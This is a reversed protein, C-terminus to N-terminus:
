SLSMPDCRYQTDLMKHHTILPSAGSTASRSFSNQWSSSVLSPEKDDHFPCLGLWDKGHKKLEIDSSEVLCVLSVERKLRDLENDPIRAM